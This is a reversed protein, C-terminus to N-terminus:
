ALSHEVVKGRVTKVRIFKTASNRMPTAM